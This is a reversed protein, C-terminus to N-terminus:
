KVGCRIQCAVLVGLGAAFAALMGAFVASEPVVHDM